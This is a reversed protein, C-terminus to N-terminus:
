NKRSLVTCRRLGSSKSKGRNHECVCNTYTAFKDAGYGDTGHVNIRVIFCNGSKDWVPDGEMELLQEMTLPDNPPQNGKEKAFRARLTDNEESLRRVEACLLPLSKLSENIWKETETM